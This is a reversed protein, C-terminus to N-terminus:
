AIGISGQVIPDQLGRPIGVVPLGEVVGKGPQWPIM